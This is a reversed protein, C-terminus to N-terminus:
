PDAKKLQNFVIEELNEGQEDPLADPTFRQVIAIL